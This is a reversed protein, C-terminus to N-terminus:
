NKIAIVGVVTVIAGGLFSTIRSPCHFFLIKCEKPVVSILSDVRITLAEIRSLSNTLLLRTSGLQMTLTDVAISDNIFAMRWQGAEERFRLALTQWGACNSDIAVPPLPNSTDAVPPHAVPMELLKKLLAENSDHLVRASAANANARRTLQAVIVDKTVLLSEAHLAQLRFAKASDSTKVLAAQAARFADWGDDKGRGGYWYAGLVCVLTLLVYFLNQNNKILQLNPM